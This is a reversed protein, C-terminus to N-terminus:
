ADQPEPLESTEGAARAASSCTDTTCCAHEFVAAFSPM